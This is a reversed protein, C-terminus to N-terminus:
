RSPDTLYNAIAAAAAAREAKAKQNSHKQITGIFKATIKFTNKKMPMKTSIESEDEEATADSSVHNGSSAISSVAARRARLRTFNQSQSENASPFLEVRKGSALPTESNGFVVSAEM